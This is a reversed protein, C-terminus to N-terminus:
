TRTEMQSELYAVVQELDADLASSPLRSFPGRRALALPPRDLGAELYAQIEPPPQWGKGRLRSRPGLDGGRQTLITRAVEGLERAVVWRFYAGRNTRRLDRALREVPGQAAARRQQRATRARVYGTMSALAIFGAGALLLNWYIQQPVSRLGLGALWAFYLLPEVIQEQIVPQLWFALVAAAVLLAAWILVRRSM